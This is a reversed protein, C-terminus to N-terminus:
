GKSSFKFQKTAEEERNEAAYMKSSLSVMEHGEYEKKFLGPTKQDFMNHKACCRHPLFNTKNDPKFQVFDSCNGELTQLYQAKKSPKIVDDLTQGSIEMYSSDTDMEGLEFDSKDVYVMLFDYYFELMRLKAYQLIFFGLQVPLDITICRKAMQLEFTDGDLETVNRFLRDNMLLKTEHPGHRYKIDVHKTRDLIVGGFASNGLLKYTDAIIALESHNNQQNNM